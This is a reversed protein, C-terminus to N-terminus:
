GTIYKRTLFTFIGASSPALVTNVMSESALQWKPKGTPVGYNTLGGSAGGNFCMWTVWLILSGM